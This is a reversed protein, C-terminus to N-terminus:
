EPDQLRHAFATALWHDAFPLTTDHGDDNVNPIYLSYDPLANAQLDEDLQGANVVHASARHAGHMNAFSAFPEHRRAYLGMYDGFFPRAPYGEAYVKWSRHHADLLDGLHHADVDHAGDDIIGFTQGAVLGLYNPLSPHSLAHYNALLAGRAALQHLFPQQMADDFETNELVVIM